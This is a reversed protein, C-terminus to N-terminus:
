VQCIISPITAGSSGILMELDGTDAGDLFSQGQHTDRIGANGPDYRGKSLRGINQVKVLSPNEIQRNQRWYWFPGQKGAEPVSNEQTKQRHGETERHEKQSFPGIRYV